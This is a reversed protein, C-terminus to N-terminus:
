GNIMAAYADAAAEQSADAPLAAHRATQPADNRWYPNDPRLLGM